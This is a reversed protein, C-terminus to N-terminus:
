HIRHGIPDLNLCQDDIGNGQHGPCDISFYNGGFIVALSFPPTGPEPMEALEVLLPLDRRLGGREAVQSRRMLGTSQLRSFWDGVM